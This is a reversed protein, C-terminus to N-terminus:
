PDFCFFPAANKFLVCTRQSLYTAPLYDDWFTYGLIFLIGKAVALGEGRYFYRGSHGSDSLPGERSADAECIKVLSM